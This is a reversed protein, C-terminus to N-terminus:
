KSKYLYEREVFYELNFYISFITDPNFTHIKFVDIGKTSNPLYINEIIEWDKNKEGYNDKIFKEEANTLAEINRSYKISVAKEISTGDGGALVVQREKTNYGFRKAKCSFM